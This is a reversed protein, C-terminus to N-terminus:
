PDSYFVGSNEAFVIILCQRDHNTCRKLQRPRICKAESVRRVHVRNAEGYRFIKIRGFSNRTEAEAVQPLPSM